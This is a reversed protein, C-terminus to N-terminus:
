GNQQRALSECIVFNYAAAAAFGLFVVLWTFGGQIGGQALKFALLIDVLTYAGILGISLVSAASANTMRAQLDLLPRMFIFSSWPLAATVVVWILLLKILHGTERIVEPHKYLWYGGATVALFIIATAVKAGVFKGIDALIM